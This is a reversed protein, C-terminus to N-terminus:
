GALAPAAGAVISTRAPRKGAERRDRFANWHTEVATVKQRGFRLTVDVDTYKPDM